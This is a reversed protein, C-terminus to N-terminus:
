KDQKISRFKFEAKDSILMAVRAKQKIQRTYKAWKKIKWRGKDTYTIDSVTM